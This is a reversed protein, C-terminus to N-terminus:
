AAIEEQFRGIVSHKQGKRAMSVGGGTGTADGVEIVLRGTSVVAAASTLHSLRLASSFIM